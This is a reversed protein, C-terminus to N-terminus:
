RTLIREKSCGSVETQLGEAHTQTQNIRGGVSGTPVAVVADIRVDVRQIGLLQRSEDELGCRCRQLRRHQLETPM